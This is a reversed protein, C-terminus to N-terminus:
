KNPGKGSYVNGLGGTIKLEEAEQESRFDELKKKLYDIREADLMGQFKSDKFMVSALVKQVQESTGTINFMPNANMFNDYLRWYEEREDTSMTSLPKGNAFTGFIRSDQEKNVLDIGKITSTVSNFFHSYRAIELLLQNRTMDKIKRTSKSLKPMNNEFALQAYSVKNNRKFSSVRRKYGAQLTRAYNRLTKMGIEGKLLALQEAPIKSIQEAKTM